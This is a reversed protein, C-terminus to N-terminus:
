YQGKRYKAATNTILAIKMRTDSGSSMSEYSCVSLNGPKANNTKSMEFNSVLKENM